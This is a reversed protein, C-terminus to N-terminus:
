GAEEEALQGEGAAGTASAAALQERRRRAIQILLQALVPVVDGPEADSDVVFELGDCDFASGMPRGDSPPKPKTRAPRDAAANRTV